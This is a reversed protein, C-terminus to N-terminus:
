NKDLRAVVLARKIYTRVIRNVRLRMAPRVGFFPRGGEAVYQALKENSLDKSGKTYGKHMGDFFMELVGAKLVRWKLSNLLQGTFTLNSRGPQYEADTVNTESLKSRGKIWSEKLLKLDSKLPISKEKVRTQDIVDTTISEGIENLMRTNSIVKEFARKVNDQVNALSSADFKFTYSM